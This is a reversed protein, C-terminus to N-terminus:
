KFDSAVRKKYTILLLILLSYLLTQATLIVIEPHIDASSAGLCNLKVYGTIAPCCPFLYYCMQWIWPMCERPFSMGSLFILGVSFVPVVLNVSEADTFFLSLLYAAVATAVLFLASFIFIKGFEGSYPMNFIIPVLGLLFISIMLYIGAFSIITKGGDKLYKSLPSTVDTNSYGAGCWVGMAMVM